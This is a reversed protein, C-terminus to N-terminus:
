HYTFILYKEKIRVLKKTLPVYLILLFLANSVSYIIMFPLGNSLFIIYRSFSFVKDVSVTTYYDILVSYLVGGLIGVLVIYLLNLKSASNLRVLGSIFGVFGFSFMQFPTWPGQGFYFNSILAGLAGVIFGVDGGFAVGSIIVIAAIPKFGPTATFIIRGIVSLAVMVGIIVVERASTRKVEFTIFFPAMALVVVVISILNYNKNKFIYYGLVIVLPIVVLYIVISLIKRLALRRSDM